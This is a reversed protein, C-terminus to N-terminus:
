CAKLDNESASPCSVGCYTTSNRQFEFEDFSKHNDKNGALIFFIWDFIFARSKGWKKLHELAAMKSTLPPNGGFKSSM